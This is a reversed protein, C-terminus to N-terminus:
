DWPLDDDDEKVGRSSGDRDAGGLLQVSNAIVETKYRKEGGAGEWSRTQFRGEVYVQAGKVIRESLREAMDGFLVVNFWETADEWEGAAGKKRNNVALSFQAQATGNATFRLEADRGVNGILSARNLSAM